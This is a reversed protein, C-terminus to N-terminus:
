KVVYYDATSVIGTSSKMGRNYQHVAKHIWNYAIDFVGYRKAYKKPFMSLVYNMVDRFQGHQKDARYREVAVECAAAVIEDVSMNQYDETTGHIM